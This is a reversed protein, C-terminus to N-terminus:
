KREDPSNINFQEILTDDEFNNQAIIQPEPSDIPPTAPQEESIVPANTPEPSAAPPEPKERPLDSLNLSTIEGKGGSLNLTTVVEEKKKSSLFATDAVPEGSENYPEERNLVAFLFRGDKILYWASLGYIVTLLLDWLLNKLADNKAKEAPTETETKPLAPNAPNNITLNGPFNPSVPQSNVAPNESRPFRPPSPLSIYTYISSMLVFVAVITSYVLYVGILKIIM